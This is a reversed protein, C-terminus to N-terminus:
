RRAASLRHGTDKWRHLVLKLAARLVKAPRINAPDPVMGAPVRAYDKELTTCTGVVSSPGGSAGKGMM